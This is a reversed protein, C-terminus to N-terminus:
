IVFQERTGPAFMEDLSVRRKSLGQEHHYRLFTQLVQENHAVGYGWFDQGMAAVTAEQEAAVWPLSVKLAAVEGLEALALDKARTFAKLLSAPLWPHQEVLSRRVGVVHMIPFIQTKAFYAQEVSRFDEFLRRVPRGPQHYASPARPAVLADIEGSLLMENLTRGAAIPQVDIDSPLSLDVKEHRGPTEVGGTRWHLDRPHVGYEDQLIGRVWVPATLQYEPVGVRRGKLDQPTRLDSGAPVYIASHRFARSLFVPIAVYPAAGKSLLMTYSSMSLEAVDFEASRLARFFTEEVPLNLFNPDCGEIPVEGNMLRQTRDYDWCAITLPLKM